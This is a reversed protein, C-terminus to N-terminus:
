EKGYTLAVVYDGREKMWGGVVYLRDSVFSTIPACCELKASLYSFDLEILTPPIGQMM